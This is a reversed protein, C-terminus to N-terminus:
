GPPEEPKPNPKFSSQGPPISLSRWEAGRMSKALYVIQGVHYSTHSLSRHLAQIVSLQQGRITVVRSLDDDALGALADGLAKWGVTWKEMLAARAVRRAEFESDRNRWEKEGDATLFETFRSKLNGSIHWAVAAVSLGEGPGAEGLQDDRLQEFAGEAVKKYREYEGEISSVVSRM